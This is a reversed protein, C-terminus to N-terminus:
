GKLGTEAVGQVLYRQLFLFVLVLPAIAVAAALFLEHLNITQATMLTSLGVQVTWMSSDQGIVLPWLFANWSNIFTIVAIASFFALSNPVVITWYARFWGLGDVRASEELEKPFNLFYQRFLFTTFGSFLTPVIIGQLTNVWRFQSVILFTPIFTVAAPIMLTVLTAYFIKNAHKYPIRALGYGALSSLLLMGATQLVAVIASIKLGGLINVAKDTFLEAFNGWQIQQPFLTWDPSTIEQDTALGNRVILYFPILFLVAAVTLLLYRVFSGAIQAGTPRRRRTPPPTSVTDPKGTPTTETQASM